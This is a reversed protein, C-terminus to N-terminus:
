KEGIPSAYDKFQKKVPVIKRKSRMSTSTIIINQWNKRKRNYASPLVLFIGWIGCFLGYPIKLFSYVLFNLQYMVMIYGAVIFADFLFTFRNIKIPSELEQVMLYTTEDM